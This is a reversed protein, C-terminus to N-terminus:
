INRVEASRVLIITMYSFGIRNEIVIDEASRLPIMTM